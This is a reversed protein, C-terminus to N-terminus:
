LTGHCSEGIVTSVRHCTYMECIVKIYGRDESTVVYRSRNAIDRSHRSNTASSVPSFTEGERM